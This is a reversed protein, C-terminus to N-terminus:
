GPITRSIPVSHGFCPIWNSMKGAGGGVLIVIDSSDRFLHRDRSGSGHGTAASGEGSEHQQGVGSAHAHGHHTGDGGGAVHKGHAPGTETTAPTTMPATQHSHGHGHGPASGTPLGVHEPRLLRAHLAAAADSRTLGDRALLAAHEPGLLLVHRAGYTHQHYAGSGMVGAITTLLSDATVSGQDHINHPAESGFVTVSSAGPDIGDISRGPWPSDPDNEAFCSTYKGPQGHTAQDLVGPIAGGINIMILRIARGITANPRWGQGLLNGRHNVGLREVVPGRIVVSVGAPHTTAQIGLLNFAPDLIAEAAAVVVPFYDPRCGALVANVAVHHITAPALAPAMMGLVEDGARDIAGIMERVAARTPPIVPLGDGWGESVSLDLLLSPDRPVRRVRGVTTM